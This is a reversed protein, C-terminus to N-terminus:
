LLIIFAYLLNLRTKFRHWWCRISTSNQCKYYSKGNCAREVANDFIRSTERERHLVTCLMASHLWSSVRFLPRFWDLSRLFGFRPCIRFPGRDFIKEDRRLLSSLSCTLLIFLNAQIISSASIRNSCFCYKSLWDTGLFSHYLFLVYTYFFFSCFSQNITPDAQAM